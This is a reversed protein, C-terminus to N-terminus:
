FRTFEYDPNTLDFDRDTLNANLKLDDYEYSEALSLDEGEGPAPWDYCSIKRPILTDPDYLVDVRYFPREVTQLPHTHTSRPWDRGDEDKAFDLITEALPDNLDLERYGILRRTLNVLGADTVPHRTDALRPILRRTWDGNHAIVKGDHLGVGYLVEKGKKPALFKLYIAFPDNRLKMHLTQLPGLKGKMREQKRFTATYDRVGQLRQDARKLIDLLLSKAAPGALTTQPWSLRRPPPATAPVTSGDPATSLTSPKANPVFPETMSWVLGVIAGVVCLPTAIWVTLKRRSSISSRPM